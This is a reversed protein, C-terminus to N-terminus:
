KGCLEANNRKFAGYGCLKGIASKTPPDLRTDFIVENEYLGSGDKSELAIKQSKSWGYHARLVDDFWTLARKELTAANPVMREKVMPISFTGSLINLRVTGGKKLLEGAAVM